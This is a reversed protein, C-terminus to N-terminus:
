RGEEKPTYTANVEDEHPEVYKSVYRTYILGAIWIIPFLCMTFLFAFNVYGIVQLHALVPIYNQVTWLFIFAIVLLILAPVVFRWRNRRLSKFASSKFADAWDVRSRLVAKEEEYALGSGSDPTDNQSM